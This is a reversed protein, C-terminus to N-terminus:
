RRPQHRSDRRAEFGAWDANKLAADLVQPFDGSDYRQGIATVYPMASQPVAATRRSGHAHAGAARDIPRRVRFGTLYFDRM